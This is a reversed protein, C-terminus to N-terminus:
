GDGALGAVGAVGVGNACLDGIEFRVAVKISSSVSAGLGREGFRM